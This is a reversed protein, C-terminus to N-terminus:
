SIYSGAFSQRKKGLFQRWKARESTVTQIFINKNNNRSTFLATIAVGLFAVLAGVLAGIFTLLGPLLAQPFKSIIGDM